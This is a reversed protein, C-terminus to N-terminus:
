LNAINNIIGMTFPAYHQLVEDCYVGYEYKRSRLPWELSYYEKRTKVQYLNGVGPLPYPVEATTFLITGNTLNPHVRLTVMTQTIPNLIAKIRVGGTIESHEATADQTVRLLPAGGNAIIKKSINAIEQGSVWVTDPSLRYNNWFFQFAPLFETIGGAGDSTLGVGTGIAGTALSQVYAGSGGKAAISLLGDFGLANVSQDSAPLASALQSAGPLSTIVVSNITTIAFLREAGATGAYWAYGMAGNVATVSAGVSNTTGASVAVTASASKQAVGPGFTDVSGDTNTKSLPGIPLGGVVTSRYVGDQTLAVAIVSVTISAGITGGAASAALTALPTVGLPVSTNGGLLMPEEQLMVARLLNLQATAKVDQFGMSAYDAEFTVYDELGLGAYSALYTQVQTTVAAGRNGESVVASTKGTNIATIAKWNTATGGAGAVRPIMNRIPTLVPFLSLAPAQLDYQVLGLAQTIAKQLPNMGEMRTDPAGLAEKVLALTQAANPKM